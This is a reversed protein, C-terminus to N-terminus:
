GSKGSWGINAWEFLAILGGGWKVRTKEERHHGGDFRPSTRFLAHALFLPLGGASRKRRKESGDGGRTPTRRIRNGASSPDVGILRGPFPRRRTRPWHPLIPQFGRGIRSRVLRRM